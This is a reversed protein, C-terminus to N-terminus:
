AFHFKRYHMMLLLGAIGCFLAEILIWQKGFPGLPGEAMQTIGRSLAYFGWLLVLFGLAERIDKRSLYILMIVISLGAGGYIGRISSAADTNSLQVQVLDMVSQPNIFAMASVMLFCFASLGVFFFSTVKLISQNKM